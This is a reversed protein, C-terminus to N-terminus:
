AEIKDIDMLRPLLWRTLERKLEEAIEERCAESELNADKFKELVSKIIDKM